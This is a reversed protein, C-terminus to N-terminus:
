NPRDGFIKRGVRVWNSGDKIAQSFDESMGMSLELHHPESLERMKQFTPHMDSKPAPITMLGKVTLGPLMRITTLLSDLEEPKVGSKTAETDVNIQIFVPLMKQTGESRKSLEQALRLSDLAHFYDACALAQRAKNSQLSGILHWRIDPLHALTQKKETLEQVYNEGFDRQGLHYAEEILSVPQLKSVAILHVAGPKRRADICAIEIEKKVSALREALSM